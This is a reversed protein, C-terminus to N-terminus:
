IKFFVLEVCYDDVCELLIVKMFNHPFFCSFLATFGILRRKISLVKVKRRFKIACFELLFTSSQDVIRIFIINIDFRLTSIYSTSANM